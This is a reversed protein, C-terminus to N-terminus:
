FLFGEILYFIFQIGCFVPPIYRVRICVEQQSVLVSRVLFDGFPRKSDISYVQDSRPGYWKLIFCMQINPFM